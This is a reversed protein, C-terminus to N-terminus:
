AKSNKKLLVNLTDDVIRLEAFISNLRDNLEAIENLKKIDGIAIGEYKAKWNFFTENNIGHDRCIDAVNIGSEQQQLIAVIQKETFKSNKM